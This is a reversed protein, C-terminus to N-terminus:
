GSRYGAAAAFDLVSAIRQRVRRATVTKDAWIPRLIALVLPEDIAAGPLRGIPPYAYPKLPAPFHPRHSRGWSAAHADFFETAVAAFTKNRADAAAQVAREARRAELPDIGDALLQRARRARGRAEELTFTALSGLGMWRKRGRLEYRLLWSRNAPSLVQLSLGHPALSRGPATLRAIQKVTLGM